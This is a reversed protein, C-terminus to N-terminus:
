ERHSKTPREGQVGLVIMAVVFGSLALSMLGVATVIAGILWGNDGGLLNAGVLAGAALVALVGAVFPLGRTYMLHRRHAQEEPDLDSSLKHIAWFITGYVAGALACAAAIGLVLWVVSV